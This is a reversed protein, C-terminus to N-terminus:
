SDAFPFYSLLNPTPKLLRYQTPSTGFTKEFLRYFYSNNTYGAKQIIDNVPFDSELLLAAAYHVRYLKRIESFTKGYQRSLMASLYKPHYGFHLATNELTATQFHHCIYRVIDDMSINKQSQLIEQKKLDSRSLEAFICSLLNQMNQGCYSDTLAYEKLLLLLCPIMRESCIYSDKFLLFKKSGANQKLSHVFFNSFLDNGLLLNFFTKQFLKKKLLINLSLTRRETIPMHIVSPNLLLFDGSELTIRQEEIQNVMKGSYVYILEFFDHRHPFPYINFADVHCNISIESKSINKELFPEDLILYGRKQDEQTRHPPNSTHITESFNDYLLRIQKGLLEKM